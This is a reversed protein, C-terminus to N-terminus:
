YFLGNSQMWTVIHEPDIRGLLFKNVSLFGCIQGRLYVTPPTTTYKNFPSLSSYQSGYLSYKNYISSISYPSGYIGYRNVISEVDYRNLCLKGLFQGDSAIIFSERNQIRNAIDETM